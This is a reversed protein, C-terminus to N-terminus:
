EPFPDKSGHTSSWEPFPLIKTQNVQQLFQIITENVLEPKEEQPLHGCQSILLKQAHPFEEIFQYYHIVPILPDNEGWIILIPKKIESFRASLDKLQQNDFNKLTEISAAAGGPFLFPLSYAQIQEETITSKDHIIFNLGHKVMDPGLFPATLHGLVKGVALYFPLKLPYGLATILTLSDISEPHEVAVSLIIGGGMSNGIFHAHDIGHAKMFHTLQQVFLEQRYLFQNPMDSLGYGIIDITWVHYGIEVLPDIIHKWTYSHARFGHVLIIHKDGSGKEVYHINQPGYPSDWQWFTKGEKIKAQAESSLYHPTPIVIKYSAFGIFILALFFYILKKM